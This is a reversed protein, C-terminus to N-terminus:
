CGISQRFAVMEIAAAAAELGKNFEDDSARDIAQQMEFVPIVEVVIPRRFEHMVEGLGRMCENSIMEFHLTDGKLIIGFCIIADLTNDTDCALLDRAALPLELSGLLTYEEIDVYGYDSLVGRCANSMNGVLEPYWKSALIAIRGKRPIEPLQSLDVETQM